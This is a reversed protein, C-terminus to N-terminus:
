SYMGGSSTLGSGLGTQTSNGSFYGAGGNANSAGLGGADAGTKFAGASAALSVGTKVLSMYGQMRQNVASKRTQAAQFKGSYEINMAELMGTMYDDQIANAPTGQLEVGSAGYSAIQEGMLKDAAKRRQVANYRADAELRSATDMNIEYDSEIGGTLPNSKLLGGGSGM